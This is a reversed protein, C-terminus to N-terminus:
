ELKQGVDLWRSELLQVFTDILNPDFQSGAKDGLEAIAQERTLPARYPRDSTMADFADAVALIRAALPIEEGRLGEPYGSGDWREHHHRVLGQVMRLFQLPELISDGLEPHQQITEVDQSDLAETKHLVLDSIGIKGIDHLLGANEILRQHEESLGIKEAIAMAYATVRESHGRTYPDRAEIAEALSRITEYYTRQTREFLRANDIAIAAQSALTQIMRRDEDSFGKKAALEFIGITRDGVRLPTELVYQIEGSLEVERSTDGTLLETEEDMLRIVSSTANVIESSLSEITHLTEDLDLSSTITKSAEHLTLLERVRQELEKNASIIRGSYATLERNMREIEDVHRSLQANARELNHYLEANHVAIAVWSAFARFLELDRDSFAGPDMAEADLVGIVRGRAKLPVAMESRAGVVGPIYNPDRSVDAVLAPEGSRAVRGTIGEELPLTLGQVEKRYGYASRLVLRKAKEDVVLVACHEFPLVQRALELTRSLVGDFDLLSCIEEGVETLTRLV